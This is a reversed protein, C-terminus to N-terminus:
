SPRGAFASFFRSEATFTLKSHAADMTWEEALAPIAAFLIAVLFLKKEM